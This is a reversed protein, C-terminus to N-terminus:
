QENEGDRNRREERERRDREDRESPSTEIMEQRLERQITWIDREM